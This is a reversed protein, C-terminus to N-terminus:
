APQELGYVRVALGALSGRVIVKEGTKVVFNTLEILGSDIPEEVESLIFSAPDADMTTNSVGVDVNCTAAGMNCISVCVTAFPTSAPVTYVVNEGAATLVSGLLGFNGIAATIQEHGDVRVAVGNINSRIFITEDASLVLYTRRFTTKPPIHLSRLVFDKNAPSVSATIAVDVVAEVLSPNCLNLYCVSYSVGPPVKYAQTFVNATSSIKSSFGTLSAM